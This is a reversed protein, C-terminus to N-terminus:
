TTGGIDLPTPTPRSKPTFRLKWSASSGAVIVIPFRTQVHGVPGVQLEVVDAWTEGRQNAIQHQGVELRFSQEECLPGLASDVCAKNGSVEIELYYTGEPLDMIQTGPGRGNLEASGPGSGSTGFGDGCAPLLAITAILAAAIITKRWTTM